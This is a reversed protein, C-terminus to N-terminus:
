RGVGDLYVQCWLEFSLLIYILYNYDHRGSANEEILYRVYDPAFFGRRRLNAESLLDGIMERLDSVIWTRIPAGFGAKRRHLIEGPLLGALAEKM